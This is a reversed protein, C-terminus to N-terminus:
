DSDESFLIDNTVSFLTYRPPKRWNASSTRKLKKPDIIEFIEILDPSHTQCCFLSNKIKEGAVLQTYLPRKLYEEKCWSPTRANKKTSIEDDSDYCDETPLLPPKSMMYIPVHNQLTRKAQGSEPVKGGNDSSSESQKALKAKNKALLRKKEAEERNKQLKEEKEAIAQKHKELKLRQIELLKEKEKQILEKQQQVKLQKEERKRRKEEAQAQLLAEKKLQAEQEKEQRRKERERYEAQSAKLASLTKTSLCSDNNSSSQPTMRNIRSTSCSKPLFKNTFPTYPKNKSENDDLVPIKSTSVLVKSANGLKEFAEVKKKTSTKDFPSFIEKIQAKKSKTNSPTKCDSQGNTAKANPPSSAVKNEVLDNHIMKPKDVVVTRDFAPVVVMTTSQIETPEDANNGELNSIADEYETQASKNEESEDSSSSIQKVPKKPKGGKDQRKTNNTIIQSENQENRKEAEENEEKKKQLRTKTRTSRTSVEPEMETTREKKKENDSDKDDTIDIMTVTTNQIIVDSPKGRDAKEVELEDQFKKNRTKTRTSRHVPEKPENKIKKKRPPLLAPAPMEEASDDNKSETSNTSPVISMKEMKIAIVPLPNKDANARSHQRTTRKPMISCSPEVNEKATEDTSGDKGQLLEMQKKLYIVDGTEVFKVYNILKENIETEKIRLQEFLKLDTEKFLDQLSM